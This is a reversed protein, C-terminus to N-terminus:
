YVDEKPIKLLESEKLEIHFTACSVKTLKAIEEYSHGNRRLTQILESPRTKPRGPYRRKAKVAALGAKVKEKLINCEFEAIAGIIHAM